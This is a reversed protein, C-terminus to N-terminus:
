RILCQEKIGKKTIIYMKTVEPTNEIEQIEGSSRDANKIDEPINLM